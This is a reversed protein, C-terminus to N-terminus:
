RMANAHGTHHLTSAPRVPAPGLGQPVAQHRGDPCAPQRWPQRWTARGVAHLLGALQLRGAPLQLQRTAACAGGPVAEIRTFDTAAGINEQRYVNNLSLSFLAQHPGATFVSSAGLDGL